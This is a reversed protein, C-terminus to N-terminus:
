PKLVEKFHFPASVTASCVSAAIEMLGGLAGEGEPLELDSYMRRFQEYERFAALFADRGSGIAVISSGCNEIIDWPYSVLYISGAAVVMAEFGEVMDKVPIEAKIIPQIFSEFVWDEDPGAHPVTFPDSLHRFILHMPADGTSGVVVDMHPCWLKNKGLFMGDDSSSASDAGVIIRDGTDWAVILTM